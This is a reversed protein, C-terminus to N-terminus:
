FGFALKRFGVAFFKNNLCLKRHFRRLLKDRVDGVNHFFDLYLRNLNKLTKQM